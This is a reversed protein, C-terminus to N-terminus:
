APAKGAEIVLVGPECRVATLNTRARLGEKALARDVDIRVTEQDVAIWDESRAAAAIASMVVSRLVPMPMGLTRLRALRALVKGDAVSLEWLSEFSVTVLLPYEGQVVVGEPTIAIRLAEVPADAPLHRALLENLVQESLNAKLALIEMLRM